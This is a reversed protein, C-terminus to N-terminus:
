VFLVVMFAVTYISKKVRAIQTFAFALFSTGHLVLSVFFIHAISHLSFLLLAQLCSHKFSFKHLRFAEVSAGMCVGVNFGTGVGAKVGIGICTSDSGGVVSGIGVGISVGLSVCTRASM